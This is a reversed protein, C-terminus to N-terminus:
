RKEFVSHTGVRRRVTTRKKFKETSNDDKEIPKTPMTTLLYIYHVIFAFLVEKQCGMGGNERNRKDNFKM